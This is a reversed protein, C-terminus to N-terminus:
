KAEAGNPWGQTYPKNRRREMSVLPDTKERHGIRHKWLFMLDDLESGLRELLRTDLRYWRESWDARVRVYENDRLVALHWSVAAKSVRFEHTIVEVLNGSLHEGSALVTVIRHRIPHALIEFVNVSSTQM